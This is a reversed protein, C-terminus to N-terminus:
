TTTPLSASCHLTATDKYEPFVANWTVETSIRPCQNSSTRHTKSELCLILSIKIAKKPRNHSYVLIQSQAKSYQSFWLNQLIFSAMILSLLPTIHYLTDGVYLSQGQSLPEGARSQGKGGGVGTDKTFTELNMIKWILIKINKTIEHLHIAPQPSDM